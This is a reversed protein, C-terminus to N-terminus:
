LFRQHIQGWMYSHAVLDEVSIVSLAFVIQVNQHHNLLNGFLAGQEFLPDPM